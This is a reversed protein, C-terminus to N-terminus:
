HAQVEAWNRLGAQAERVHEALQQLRAQSAGPELDPTLGLRTRAVGARRHWPTCYRRPREGPELPFWQRCHDCRAAPSVVVTGDPQRFPMKQVTIRRRRQSVAKAEKAM